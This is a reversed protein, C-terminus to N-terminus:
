PRDLVKALPDLLCLIQLNGAGIRPGNHLQFHLSSPHICDQLALSLPSHNVVISGIWMGRSSLQQDVLIGNKQLFYLKSKIEMLKNHVASWVTCVIDNNPSNLAEKADSIDGSTPHM